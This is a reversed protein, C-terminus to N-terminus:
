HQLQAASFLQHHPRQSHHPQRREAARLIERSADRKRPKADLTHAHSPTLRRCPPTPHLPKRHPLHTKHYHILPSGQIMQFGDPANKRHAYMCIPTKEITITSYTHLQINNATYTQKVELDLSTNQQLNKMTALTSTKISKRHYSSSATLWRCLVARDRARGYTHPSRRANTIKNQKTLPFRRDQNCLIM